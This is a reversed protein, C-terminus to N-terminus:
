WNVGDGNNTKEVSESDMSDFNLYGGVSNQIANWLILDLFILMLSTMGCQLFQLFQVTFMLEYISGASESRCQQGM